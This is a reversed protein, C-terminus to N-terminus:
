DGILSCYKFIHRIFLKLKYRVFSLMHDQKPIESSLEWFIDLVPVVGINNAMLVFEEM